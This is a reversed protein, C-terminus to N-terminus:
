KVQTSNIKTDGRRVPDSSGGRWKAAAHGHCGSIREELLTLATRLGASIFILIKEQLL